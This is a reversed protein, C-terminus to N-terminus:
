GLYILGDDGVYPSCEGYAKSAQTLVEGDPKPWDGDWFGVGHGNRTFWFDHGAQKPDATIREWQTEQFTQCDCKVQEQTGPALNDYTYRADLPKGEDDMSSWLMAEVYAQTFTDM